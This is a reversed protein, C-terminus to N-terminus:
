VANAGGAKGKAYAETDHPNKQRKHNKDSAKITSAQDTGSKSDFIQGGSANAARKANNGRGSTNVLPQKSM